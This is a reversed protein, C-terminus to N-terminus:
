GEWELCVCFMDYVMIQMKRFTVQPLPAVTCFCEGPGFNRWKFNDGGGIYFHVHCFSHGHVFLFVVDSSVKVNNLYLCYQM